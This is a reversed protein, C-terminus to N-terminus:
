FNSKFSMGNIIEHKHKSFDSPLISSFSYLLHYIMFVSEKKLDAGNKIMKRICLYRSDQVHVPHRYLCPKSSPTMELGPLLM